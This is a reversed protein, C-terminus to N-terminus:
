TDAAGRLLDARMAAIANNVDQPTITQGKPGSSLKELFVTKAREVLARTNQRNQAVQSIGSVYSQLLQETPWSTKIADIQARSFMVPKPVAGPDPDPGLPNEVHSFSFDEGAYDDDLLALIRFFGFVTVQAYLIREASNGVL